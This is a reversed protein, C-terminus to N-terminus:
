TKGQEISRRLVLCTRPSLTRYYNDIRKHEQFGLREYFAIADENAVHVHLQVCTASDVLAVTRALVQEVLQRGIGFRRHAADVALTQIHVLKHIPDHEAIVAGVLQESSPDFVPPHEDDNTQNTQETTKSGPTERLQEEDNKGGGEGEDADCKRRKPSRETGASSIVAAYCLKARDSNVARKYCRAPPQVPLVGLNLKKVSNVLEAPAHFLSLLQLQRADEDRGHAAVRGGAADETSAGDETERRM